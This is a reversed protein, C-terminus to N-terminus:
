IDTNPEHVVIGIGRSGADLFPLDSGGARSTIITTGVLRGDPRVRQALVQTAGLGPTEEWVVIFADGAWAITPNFSFGSSHTVRVDGPALKKGSRDLVAFYIEYNADRTDNWTVGFREGNWVAQRGHMTGGHANPTGDSVQAETQLIQSRESLLADQ